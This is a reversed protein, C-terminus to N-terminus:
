ASPRLHRPNGLAPAKWEQRCAPCYAGVKQLAPCAAPAILVVKQLAVLLRWAAFGRGFPRVAPAIAGSKASAISVQLPLLCWKKCVGGAQPSRRQGRLPWFIGSAALHGFAVQAGSNGESFHCFAGFPPATCVKKGFLSVKKCFGRQNKLFDSPHTSRHVSKKRFLNALHFGLFLTCREVWNQFGGNKLLARVLFPGKQGFFTHVAGGLKVWGWFDSPFIPRPRLGLCPPGFPGRLGSPALPAQKLGSPALFGPGCPWAPPGFPGRLGSPALPAQKLGFAQFAKLGSPGLPASAALHGFAM